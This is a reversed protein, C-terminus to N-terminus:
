GLTGSRRDTLDGHEGDGHLDRRQRSLRHDDRGTLNTALWRSTPRFSTRDGARQVDGDVVGVDREDPVRGRAGAGGGDSCDHRGDLHVIAASSTKGGSTATVAFTHSGARLRCRRGVRDDGPREGLQVDERGGDLTCAFTVGSQTDTYTFTASTSNTPNAPTSTFTPAPPASAAFVAYAGWVGLALVGLLAVLM